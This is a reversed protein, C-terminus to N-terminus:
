AQTLRPSPSISQGATRSAKAAHWYASLAATSSGAPSSDYRRSTLWRTSRRSRPRAQLRRVLILFFAPEEPLCRGRFSVRQWQIIQADLVSTIPTFSMAALFDHRCAPPAKRKSAVNPNSTKAADGGVASACDVFIATVGGIPQFLQFLNPHSTLSLNIRSIASATTLVPM